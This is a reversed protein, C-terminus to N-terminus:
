ERVSATERALARGRLDPPILYDFPKDFHYAAQEVVVKAIGAANM